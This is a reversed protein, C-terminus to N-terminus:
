AAAGALRIQWEPPAFQNWVMGDPDILRKAERLAELSAKGAHWVRHDDSHEFAWDHAKLALIYQQLREFQQSPTTM